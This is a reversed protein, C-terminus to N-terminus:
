PKICRVAAGHGRAATATSVLNALDMGGFAYAKTGTAESDSTWLFVNQNGRLVGTKAFRLDSYVLKFIAANAPDSLDADNFDQPTPVIYGCPCVQNPNTTEDYPASWSVERLSGNDDVGPEVWVSDPSIIFNGYWDTNTDSGDLTTALTDNTDSTIEQHGDASRGWQYYDGFAPTDTLDPPYAAM